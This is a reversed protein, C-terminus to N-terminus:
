YRTVLSDAMVDGRLLASQGLGLVLGLWTKKIDVLSLRFVGDGDDGQFGDGAVGL